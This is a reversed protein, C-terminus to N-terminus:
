YKVPKVASEKGKKTISPTVKVSPTSKQTRSRLRRGVGKQVQKPQPDEVTELADVDIMTQEESVTKESEDDDSSVDKEKNKETESDAVLDPTGEKETSAKSESS